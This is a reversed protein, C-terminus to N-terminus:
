GERLPTSTKTQSTDVAMVVVAEEERITTKTALVMAAVEVLMRKEAVLRVRPDLARDLPPRARGKRPAMAKKGRALRRDVVVAVVRKAGSLSRGTM